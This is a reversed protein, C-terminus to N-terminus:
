GRKAHASSAQIKVRGLNRSQNRVHRIIPDRRVVPSQHRHFGGLGIGEEIVGKTHLCTNQSNKSRAEHQDTEWLGAASVRRSEVGVAGFLPGFLSDFGFGSLELEYICKIRQRFRQQEHKVFMKKRANKGGKKGQGRKPRSAERQARSREVLSGSPRQFADRARM